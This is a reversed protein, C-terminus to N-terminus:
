NGAAILVPDYGSLPDPVACCACAARHATSIRWTHRLDYVRSPELRNRWTSQESDIRARSRNAGIGLYFGCIRVPLTADGLRGIKRHSRLELAVLASPGSPSRVRRRLVSTAFSTHARAVFVLSRACTVYGCARTFALGSAPKRYVIPCLDWRIVRRGM